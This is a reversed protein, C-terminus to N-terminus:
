YVDKSKRINIELQTTTARNDDDYMEEVLTPMAIFTGSNRVQSYYSIHHTGAPLYNAYFRTTAPNLQREYFFSTNDEPKESHRIGVPMNNALATDTPLWGGPVPNSV